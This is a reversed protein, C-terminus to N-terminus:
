PITYVVGAGFDHTTITTETSLALADKAASLHCTSKILDAHVTDTDARSTTPEDTCITLHTHISDTLRVGACAIVTSLALCTYEAGTLRVRTTVNLARMEFAARESM